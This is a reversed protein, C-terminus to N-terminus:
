YDYNFLFMSRRENTLSDFLGVNDSTSEYRQGVESTFSLSASKNLQHLYTFSFNMPSRYENIDNISALDYSYTYESYQMGLAVFWSKNVPSIELDLGYTFRQLRRNELDYGTDYYTFSPTLSLGDDNNGIEAAFHMGQYSFNNSVAKSDFGEDGPYSNPGKAYSQFANYSHFATFQPSITGDAISTVWTIEYGLSLAEYLYSGQYPHTDFVSRDANTNGLLNFRNSYKNYFGSLSSEYPEKAEVRKWIDDNGVRKAVFFRAKWYTNDLSSIRVGGKAAHIFHGDSLYIGVHNIRKSQGNTSFFVLDGTILEDKAVKQMFPLSSQSSSKHPLEIGFFELYVQRVFGSCDFGKETAGGRIYPIGIYKDLETKFYESKIPDVSSILSSGNNYYENQALALLKSPKLISFILLLSFLSVFIIRSLGSSAILSLVNNQQDL